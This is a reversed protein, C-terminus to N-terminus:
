RRAFLERGLVGARTLRFGGGLSNGACPEAGGGHPIAPARGAGGPGASRELSHEELSDYSSGLTGRLIHTGPIVPVHHLRSPVRGSGHGLGGM